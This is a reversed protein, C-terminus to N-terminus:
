TIKVNKQLIAVKAAELGFVADRVFTMTSPGQWRIAVGDDAADRVVVAFTIKGEKALQLTEELLAVLNDQSSLEPAPPVIRLDAM